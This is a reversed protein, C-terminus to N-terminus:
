QALAACHGRCCLARSCAVCCMLLTATRMRRDGAHLAPCRAGVGVLMAAETLNRPVVFGLLSMGTPPTILSAPLSCGIIAAISSVLALYFVSVSPDETRLERVCMKAMASCLAQLTLFRLISCAAAPVAPGPPAARVQFLAFFVGLYSREVDNLFGLFSPRSILTVGAMCLLIAFFTARRGRCCVAGHGRWAARPFLCLLAANDRRAQVAAGQHHFPEARGGLHAGYLDAGNRREAAVIHGRGLRCCGWWTLRHTATQVLM